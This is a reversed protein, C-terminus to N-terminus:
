VIYLLRYGGGLRKRWGYVIKAFLRLSSVWEATYSRTISVNDNRYVYLSDEIVSVREARMLPGYSVIADEHLRIRSDVEFLSKSVVGRRFVKNWMAAPVGFYFFRGSYIMKEYFERALRERDYDGRFGRMRMKKYKGDQFYKYHFLLVDPKRERIRNVIVRISWREVWDDADVFWVYKGKAERFGKQRARVQGSNKQHFIKVNGQRFRDAIKGSEDKSGDDVVILEADFGRMARIISELCQGIYKEANYVPVVVSILM